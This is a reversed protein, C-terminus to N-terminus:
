AKMWKQAVAGEEPAFDPEDDDLAELWARAVEFVGAVEEAFAEVAGPQVFILRCLHPTEEEGLSAFTGGGTATWDLNAELFARALQPEERLDAELEVTALVMPRDPLPVLMMQMDEAEAMLMGDELLGDSIGNAAAFEALFAKAMDASHAAGNLLASLQTPLDTAGFDETM